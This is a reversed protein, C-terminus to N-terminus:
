NSMIILEIPLWAKPMTKCNLIVHPLVKHQRGVGYVNCDTMWEKWPTKIVSKTGENNYNFPTLQCVITVDQLTFIKAMFFVHEEMDNTCLREPQVQFKLRENLLSTVCLQGKSTKRQLSVTNKAV